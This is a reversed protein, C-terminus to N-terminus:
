EAAGVLAVVGAEEVELVLLATGFLGVGECRVQGDVILDSEVRGHGWYLVQVILPLNGYNLADTIGLGNARM